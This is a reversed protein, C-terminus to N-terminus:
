YTAVCDCGTGIGVKLFFFKVKALELKEKVYCQVFDGTFIDGIHSKIMPTFFRDNMM